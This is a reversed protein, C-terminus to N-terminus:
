EHTHPGHEWEVHVTHFTYYIVRRLKSSTNPPSGHLLRVNHLLVDGAHLLVPEADETSVGDRNFRETAELTEADTLRHSGPRVWLCTDLDAEDLYFDAIFVPPDSPYEDTSANDRHWPVAIGQGPMKLVMADQTPFLDPGAIREVAALVIPHGMMARAAKSKDTVYEVRRLIDSGDEHGVGFSFDELGPSARRALQDMDSHLASLEDSGLMAPLVLWGTENFQSVQNATLKSM